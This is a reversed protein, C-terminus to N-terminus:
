LKDAQLTPHFAEVGCVTVRNGSLSGLWRDVLLTPMLAAFFAATSRPPSLVAAVADWYVLDFQFLSFAEELSLFSWFSHVSDEEM